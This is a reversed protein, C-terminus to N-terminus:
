LKEDKYILFKDLIGEINKIEDDEEFGSNGSSNSIEALKIDEEQSGFEYKSNKPDYENEILPILNKQINGLFKDLEPTLTIATSINTDNDNVYPLRSERKKIIECYNRLAELYYELNDVEKDKLKGDTDTPLTLGDKKGTLGEVVEGMAALDVSCNYGGDPRSVIEFNKIYGVFGDYNGGSTEIRKHIIKNINSINQNSDFWEWLYPFYNEKKGKNNIYVSWGWELLIPMGPRMYLADLIDLQRRNHCVFNIKADRLSGYATKTRIEADIIGPMPVIGYGDTEPDSADSRLYPDGYSSGYDKGTGRTFQRTERGRPIVKIESQGEKRNNLFDVDKAPVGGELMYRIALGEKVLNETGIDNGDLLNNEQKLDVGSSMRIICQKSVTNTYFAGAPLDVSTEEADEGRLGEVKSRGLARGSKQNLAAERITLQNFVFNQFTETFISM